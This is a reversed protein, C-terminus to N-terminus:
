EAPEERYSMLYPHDNVLIELEWDGADSEGYEVGDLTVQANPLVLTDVVDLEADEVVKRPDQDYIEAVVAGVRASPQLQGTTEDVLGADALHENGPTAFHNTSLTYAVHTRSQQTVNGTSANVSFDEWDTESEFGDHTNGVYTVEQDGTKIDDLTSDDLSEDVIGLRYYAGSLVYEPLDPGNNSSM